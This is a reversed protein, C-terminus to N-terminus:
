ERLFLIEVHLLIKWDFCVVFDTWYCASYNIKCWKYKSFYNQASSNKLGHTKAGCRFYKYNAGSNVLAPTDAHVTLDYHQVDRFTGKVTDQKKFMKRSKLITRRIRQRSSM